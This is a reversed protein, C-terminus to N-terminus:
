MTSLVSFSEGRRREELDRNTGEGVDMGTVRALWPGRKAAEIMAAVKDPPGAIIAEVSGDRRNRVWGELGREIAESAAWARYGIGQM